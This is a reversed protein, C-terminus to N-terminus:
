LILIAAHDIVEAPIMIEYVRYKLRKRIDSIGPSRKLAENSALLVWRKNQTNANPPCGMFANAGGLRNDAANNCAPPM